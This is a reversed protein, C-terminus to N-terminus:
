TIGLEIERQIFLSFGNYKHGKLRSQLETPLAVSQFDTHRRNLEARDWKSVCLRTLKVQSAKKNIPNTISNGSHYRQALLLTFLIM